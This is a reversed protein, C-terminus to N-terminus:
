IKYRDHIVDYMTEGVKLYDAGETRLLQGFWIQDHEDFDELNDSAKKLVWESSIKESVSYRPM